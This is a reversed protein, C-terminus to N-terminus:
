LLRDGIRHPNTGMLVLKVRDSKIVTGRGLWSLPLYHIETRPIDIKGVAHWKKNRMAEDYLKKLSNNKANCIKIIHVHINIDRAPNNM